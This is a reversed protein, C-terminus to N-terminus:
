FAVTFIPQTEISKLSGAKSLDITYLLLTDRGSNSDVRIGTIEKALQGYIFEIAKASVSWKSLTNTTEGYTLLLRKASEPLFCHAISPKHRLM